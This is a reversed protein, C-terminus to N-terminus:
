PLAPPPPSQKEQQRSKEAKQQYEHSARVKMIVNVAAAIIPGLVLGPMGLLLIGLLAAGLAALPRIGMAKGSVLPDLIQRIIVLGIYLLGIKLAMDTNGTCAAIIAWPVFVMGSGLVPIFDLLSIGLAILIALKVGFLSLAISIIVLNLLFFILQAKLWGIGLHFFGDM